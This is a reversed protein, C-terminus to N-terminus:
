EEPVEVIWRAKKEKRDVIAVDYDMFDLYKVFVDLGMRDRRMNTSVTSQNVNLHEAIDAQTMQRSKIAEKLIKKDKMLVADDTKMKKTVGKRLLHYCMHLYIYISMIVIKIIIMVNRSIHIINLQVNM